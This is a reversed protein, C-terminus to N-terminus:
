ISSIKKSIELLTDKSYHDRVGPKAVLYDAIEEDSLSYAEKYGRILMKLYSESPVTFTRKDIDDRHTFTFIPHDDCDGVYVINGYLSDQVLESGQQQVKKFDISFDVGDNEQKVVDNFQEETILYMRGLTTQSADKKTGIFAAGGGWRDSFSSFYLPYNLEVPRVKLPFSQDRSGAERRTSGHPKGGKIYCLFREECLNSGFSAYWVYNSQNGMM